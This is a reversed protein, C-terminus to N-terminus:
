APAATLSTSLRYGFTDEDTGVLIGWTAPFHLLNKAHSANQAQTDLSYHHPGKPLLSSASFCDFCHMVHFVYLSLQMVTTFFLMFTFILLLSLYIYCLSIFQAMGLLARPAQLLAYMIRPYTSALM